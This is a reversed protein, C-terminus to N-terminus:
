LSSLPSPMFVTCCVRGLNSPLRQGYALWLLQICVNVSSKECDQRTQNKWPPPSKLLTDAEQFCLGVLSPPM